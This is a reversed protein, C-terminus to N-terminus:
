LPPPLGHVEDPRASGEESSKLADSNREAADDATMAAVLEAAKDEPLGRGVLEATVEAPALKDLKDLTILVGAGAGARVGFAELLGALVRRSTLAFRFGGMGLGALVANVAGMVEAEALASGAG